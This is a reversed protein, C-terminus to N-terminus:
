LGPKDHIARETLLRSEVGALTYEAPVLWAKSLGRGKNLAVGLGYKALHVRNHSLTALGADEALLADVNSGPSELGAAGLVVTSLSGMPETGGQLQDIRLNRNPERSPPM